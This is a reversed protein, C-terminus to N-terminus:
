GFVKTVNRLNVPHGHMTKGSTLESRIWRTAIGNDYGVIQDFELYSHFAGHKEFVLGNELAIKELGRNSIRPLYQAPNGNMSFTKAEADTRAAM